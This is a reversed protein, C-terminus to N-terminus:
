ENMQDELASILIEVDMVAQSLLTENSSRLVVNVGLEGDKFYPYSGIDVADFKTQIEALGPAITSEAFRSPVNHSKIVPGGQLGIVVHDVMAQFISPVGAMVYVNEIVFGPAASVPNPILDAGVPTKAMKQRAPTFEEEGYHDLLIQYAQDHTELAADFAKAVSDATIDDHTPGIGGSTFIYDVSKKLDHITAIITDEDDPIVRVEALVIGKDVLKCAVYNINKDQTRGSLIENGIVVMAAKYTKSM